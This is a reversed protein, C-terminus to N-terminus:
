PNKQDYTLVLYIIYIVGILLLGLSFIISWTPDNIDEHPRLLLEMVIFALSITPM